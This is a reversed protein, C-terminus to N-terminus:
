EVASNILYLFRNPNLRFFTSFIHFETSLDFCPLWWRPAIGGPSFCHKRVTLPLLDKRVLGGEYPFQNVRQHLPISLFNSINEFLLLFDAEEPSDVFRILEPINVIPEVLPYNTFINVIKNMQHPIIRQDRIEIQDKNNLDDSRVV